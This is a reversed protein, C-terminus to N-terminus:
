LKIANTEPHPVYDGKSTEVHIKSSTRHETRQVYNNFILYKVFYRTHGVLIHQVRYEDLPHLWSSIQSSIHGSRAMKGVFVHVLIAM